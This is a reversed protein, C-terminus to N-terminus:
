VLRRELDKLARRLRGIEKELAAAAAPATELERRRAMDEMRLAAEFAGRSSFNAVSGKLKHAAVQLAPADKATIAQSVADLMKPADAQFLAILEGLLSRDGNLRALLSREDVIDAGPPPAPSAHGIAEFLEAARIPKAVYGDMGAELCRQRDGKMAYATLAVIPIRGGAKKERRRIERAAQLGDIDPMQVDMLVLDFQGARLKDLVQRGSSAVTVKHGRKELLRMALTQNVADDEALLIRLSRAPQRRPSRSAAARGNAGMAAVMAALLASHKAPKTLTAALDPDKRGAPLAGASTLMILPVSALRPSAKIRRALTLGDMGPMQGDILALAFPRGGKAARELAALAQEGGEVLVPKMHWAKVTEELIRRNTANDDVVLVRLNRL